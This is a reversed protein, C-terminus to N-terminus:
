GAEAMLRRLADRNSQEFSAQGSERAKIVLWVATFAACARLRAQETDALDRDSGYGDLFADRLDPRTRWAGLHLRVLDAVWVDLRTWEFDLIRLEGHEVLWNRMSYDRHCPVLRPAPLDALTEIEARAFGLERHTFLDAAPGTLQDFEDLRTAADDPQPSTTHASHLRRLLVGAQRHLATEAAAHAPDSTPTPWPAPSGPLATLIVARRAPDHARLTPARDGLAPVWRQYATAEALYRAHERHQKLFWEHGAQDRLQVVSSWQHDWSHDKVVDCPGLVREAYELATDPM